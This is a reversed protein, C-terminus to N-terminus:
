VKGPGSGVRLLAATEQTVLVCEGLVSGGAHGPCVGAWAGTDRILQGGHTRSLGRGGEIHGLCATGQTDQASRVTGQMDWNTGLLSDRAHGPHVVGRAGQTCGEGHHGDGPLGNKRPKRFIHGDGVGQPTKETASNRSSGTLAPHSCHGPHPLFLFPLLVRGPFPTTTSPLSVPVPSCRAHKSPGRFEAGRVPPERPLDDDKRVDPSTCASPPPLHAAPAAGGSSRLTPAPGAASQATPGVGIAGAAECVRRGNRGECGRSGDARTQGVRGRRPRCRGPRTLPGGQELHGGRGSSMQASGMHSCPWM